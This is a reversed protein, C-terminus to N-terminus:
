KLRPIYKLFEKKPTFIALGKYSKENDDGYWHHESNCNIEVPSGLDFSFSWVNCDNVLDFEKKTCEQIVLIDPNFRLMEHYKEVTFGGCSWGGCNWSVIRM